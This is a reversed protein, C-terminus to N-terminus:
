IHKNFESKRNKKGHNNTPLSPTYFPQNKRSYYKPQLSITELGYGQAVAINFITEKKEQARELINSLVYVLNFSEVAKKYRVAVYTRIGNALFSTGIWLTGSVDGFNEVFNSNPNGDKLYFMPLGSIIEAGLLYGSHILTMNEPKIGIYPAVKNQTKRTSGAFILVGLTYDLPRFKKMAPIHNNISDIFSKKKLSMYFKFMGKQPFKLHLENAIKELKKIKKM